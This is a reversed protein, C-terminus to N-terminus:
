LRRSSLREHRVLDRHVLGDPVGPSHELLGPELGHLQFTPIWACARHDLREHGGPNRHHAVQAQAGLRNVCEPAIPHLPPALLFGTLERPLRQRELLRARERYHELQHRGRQSLLHRTRDTDRGDSDAGPYATIALHQHQVVRETKIGTEAGAEERGVM